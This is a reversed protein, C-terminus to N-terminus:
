AYIESRLIVHRTIRELGWRIVRLSRMGNQVRRSDERLEVYFGEEIHEIEMWASILLLDFSDKMM